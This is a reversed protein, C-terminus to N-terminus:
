MKCDAGYMYNAAYYKFNTRLRDNLRPPEM